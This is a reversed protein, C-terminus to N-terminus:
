VRIKRLAKPMYERELYPRGEQSPDFLQQLGKYGEILYRKITM